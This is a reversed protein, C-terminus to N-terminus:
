EETFRYIDGTKASTYIGELIRTIVYAQEPLTIPDKDERIAEIWLRAERNAMSEGKEGGNFAVGGATFSPQLV